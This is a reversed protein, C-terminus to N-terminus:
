IGVRARLHFVKLPHLSPSIINGSSSCIKCKRVWAPKLNWWKSKFFVCVHLERAELAPQCCFTTGTVVWGPKGNFPWSSLASHLVPLLIASQLGTLVTPRCCLPHLFLPSTRQRIRRRCTRATSPSHPLHGWLFDMYKIRGQAETWLEPAM